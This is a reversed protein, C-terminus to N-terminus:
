ATCRRGAGDHEDDAEGSSAVMSWSVDSTKTPAPMSSTPMPTPMVMCFRTRATWFVTAAAALEARGAARDGEEARQAAGDADGDEAGDQGAPDGVLM